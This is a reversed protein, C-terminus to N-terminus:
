NPYIVRLPDHIHDCMMLNAINELIKYGDKWNVQINLKNIYIYQALSLPQYRM